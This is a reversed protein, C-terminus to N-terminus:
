PTKIPKSKKDFTLFEHYIRDLMMISMDARLFDLKSMEINLFTCIIPKNTNTVHWLLFSIFYLPNLPTEPMTAPTKPESEDSLHGIKLTLRYM